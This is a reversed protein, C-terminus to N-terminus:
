LGHPAHDHGPIDIRATFSCGMDAIGTEADALRRAAKFNSATVELAIHRETIGLEKLIAPTLPHEEVSGDHPSQFRGWLEFFPAVPRIAGDDDKFRIHEPLYPDLSGDDRVRFTVAPKIITQDDDHATRSIRWDFAELPTPSAGVRAIAMPPTFFISLLTRM